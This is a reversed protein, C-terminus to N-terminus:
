QSQKTQFSKILKITRDRVDKWQNLYVKNFDVEYLLGDDTFHESCGPNAVATDGTCIIYISPETNTDTYIESVWDKKEENTPTTILSFGKYFPTEKRM